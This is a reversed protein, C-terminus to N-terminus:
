QFHNHPILSATEMNATCFRFQSKLSFRNLGSNETKIMKEKEKREILIGCNNRCKM